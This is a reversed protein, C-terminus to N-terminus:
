PIGRIRLLGIGIGLLVIGYFRDSETIIAFRQQEASTSATGPNDKIWQLAAKPDSTAMAKLAADVGGERLRPM